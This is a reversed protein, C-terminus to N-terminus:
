RWVRCEAGNGWSGRILSLVQAVEDDSLVTAFPPMGFPRPNGATAPPFGGEIVLHVLNAPTRMAVVRNGAWAPYIGAAGEGQEGLCQACHEEYLKAGADNVAAIRGRQSVSRVEASQPLANLYNAM